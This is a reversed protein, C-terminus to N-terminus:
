SADVAHPPGWGVGVRRAGNSALGTQAAGLPESAEEASGPANNRAGSIAIEYRRVTRGVSMIGPSRCKHTWTRLGECSNSARVAASL